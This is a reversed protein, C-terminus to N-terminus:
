LKRGRLWPFDIRRVAVSLLLLVLAPALLYSWLPQLDPLVGPLAAADLAEQPETAFEKGGNLKKLLLDNTGANLWERGGQASFGAMETGTASGEQAIRVEYAGAEGVPVDAEYRGPATQALLTTTVTGSPSRIGATINALDAFSDDANLSEVSLHATFPSVQNGQGTVTISTQLQRNTPSAMTWRVTQSWFQAFDSWGLWQKGWGPGVDSTYAAVRGLGYNWHALLPHGLDSTLAVVSDGKATTLDYGGVQPIEQPTLGRLVPSPSEIHPQTNGEVTAQKLALDLEKFVIRPINDIRETFYYRGQGQKALRTLLDRDADEGVGITSLSTGDARLESILPGYDEGHFDKGDTLLVLHKSSAKVNRIADTGDRVAPYIHTGGGLPIDSILGKITEKDFDGQIKQVPVAWMTETDFTLVGVTDDKRLADVALRAAEKAMSFKTDTRGMGMWEDMSQSRDMILILATDGKEPRPGPKSSVPLVDEFVSDPYNGKAYSTQGGVAVLGHGGRRVYEQLTRQQDLTFSTAAINEMVVSDYQSLETWQAPIMSPDRVDVSIQQSSLAQALQAAEGARDELVLVRPQDKVVLTAAASNNQDSTDASGSVQAELRHFGQTEVKQEIRLTNDGAKLGIQRAQLPAGDVALRLTATAEGTSFIQIESQISDGVRAYAPMDLSKMIIEPSGLASLAVVQVDIGRAAVRGAEDAASGQTQWGDSLVVVRRKGTNGLLSDALRLGAALDTQNETGGAQAPAKELGAAWAEVDSIVRADGAVDVFQAGVGSGRSGVGKTVGRVYAAAQQRSEASLSGSTDVVVVLSLSNDPRALAPEALALLLLLASLSQLLIAVRRRWPALGKLRRATLYILPVLLLALVLVGPHLLVVESM